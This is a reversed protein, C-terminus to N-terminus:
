KTWVTNEPITRGKSYEIHKVLWQRRPKILNPEWAFTTTTRGTPRPMFEKIYNTILDYEQLNIIGEFELEKCVLCLGKPNFMYKESGFIRDLNDNIIILLENLNKM